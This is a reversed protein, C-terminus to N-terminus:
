KLFKKEFPNMVDSVVLSDWKLTVLKSGNISRIPFSRKFMGQQFRLNIRKVSEVLQNIILLIYFAVFGCILINHMKIKIM